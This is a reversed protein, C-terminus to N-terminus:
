KILKFLRVKMQDAYQLYKKNLEDLIKEYEDIAKYTINFKKKWVQGNHRLGHAYVYAFVVLRL